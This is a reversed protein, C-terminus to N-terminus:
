GTYFSIHREQQIVKRIVFFSLGIRLLNSFASLVFNEMKGRRVYIGFASKKIEDKAFNKKIGDAYIDWSM